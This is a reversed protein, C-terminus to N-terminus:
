KECEKLPEIILKGDDLTLIIKGSNWKNQKWFDLIIKPILVTKSAGSMGLKKVLKM